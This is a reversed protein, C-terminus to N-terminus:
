YITLISAVNDCQHIAICPINYKQQDQAVLLKVFTYREVRFVNLIAAFIGM